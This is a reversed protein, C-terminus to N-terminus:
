LAQLQEKLTYGTSLTQNVRMLEELRAIGSEDLRQKNGLLLYM